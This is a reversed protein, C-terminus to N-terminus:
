YIMKPVTSHFGKGYFPEAYALPAFQKGAFSKAALGAMDAATAAASVFLANPHTVLLRFKESGNGFFAVRQHQLMGAFSEATLLINEAQSFEELTPKYLATFVETRRADIMPCLLDAGACVKIAAAAMAQLTNVAILPVALAYCLGKATAMGVRLGTYSGPGASVAVAEIQSLSLGEDHILRQISPHLWAAADRETQSVATRRVVGEDAVCVSARQVATDIHLILPM